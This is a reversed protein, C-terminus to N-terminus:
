KLSRWSKQNYQIEKWVISYLARFHERYRVCRPANHQLSKSNKNVTVKSPIAAKKSLIKEPRYKQSYCDFDHYFGHCRLHFTQALLANWKSQALVANRIQPCKPHFVLFNINKRYKSRTTEGIICNPSFLLLVWCLSMWEGSIKM